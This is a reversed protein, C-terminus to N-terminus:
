RPSRRSMTPARRRFQGPASITQVNTVLVHPVGVPDREADEDTGRPRVRRRTIRGRANGRRLCSRRRQRSRSGRRRIGRRRGLRTSCRVPRVLPLRRRPRGEPAGRRGRARSRPTPSRCRTPSRRPSASRSAGPTCALLQDGPQLDTAAVQDGVAELDTIAGAQKLRSPVQEISVSSKITDPEAGKPVFEDVVYVDVLAEEAVAKDKASRVYGVLSVTGVLALLMAAVIGIIRRKNKMTSYDKEYLTHHNAPSTSVPSPRFRHQSGPNGGLDHIGIFDGRICNKGIPRTAREERPERRLQERQVLLGDPPVRRIRPDSVSENGQCGTAPCARRRVDPDHHRTALPWHIPSARFRSSSTTGPSAPHPAAPPSRSTATSRRRTPRVGPARRAAPRSRRTRCTSSSTPGCRGLSISRRVRVRRHHDARDAEGLTGWKATATRDVAGASQKLLLGDVDKTVTITPRAAAARRSSSRRAPKRYPSYDAIPAGTLACDTAVALSPPM